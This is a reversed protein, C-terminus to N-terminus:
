EMTAKRAFMGLAMIVFVYVRDHIKDFLCFYAVRWTRKLLLICFVIWIGTIFGCGLGIYFLMSETVKERTRHIGSTETGLCNRELPPGCLGNNGDYISPDETYLTELQRGQPIMGALNNYSLDLYSLYTLEALSPPIEGSFNNRSLDLSELSKTSGLNELISGTLQNWSLNLNLLGHLFTIEDPITGTLHNLSLDIGVVEDIRAGYNLEQRKIVVSLIGGFRDVKQGVYSEFWYDLEDFFISFLNVQEKPHETMSILNSLSQPIVGSINNAALNLYRLYRLSAINVPIHGYFMNHSLQLFRLQVLDGIWDPLTGYFKNWSLDLYMLYSSQLFSPLIGSFSNRSLLLFILDLMQRCQPFEGELFNNSLDLAIMDQSECISQPIQGTIYNSSLILIKLDRAGIDLPLPGTLFNISLDLRNPMRPLIPIQGNLQNSRLILTELSSCNRIARPIDGIINNGSLDLYYLSPLINPIESPITGTLNNNYLELRILGSFNQTMPKVYRSSCRPLKDVLYKINCHSLSGGLRLDQLARLDKLEVPMTASNGNDNFGLLRLSTLSGLASPFPGFLHTGSLELSEISTLNWFWCSSVPYGLYNSSLDLDVLKTLNLLTLSQNSRPLSCNALHLVNLSPISNLVHPWDVAMSLDISSMDLYELLQLRNLWSIDTSYAHQMRGLGLHQLSSLNGLEPPVWGSFSATSLDLYELKSLNALQPPISGSVLLGGFLDLHRLNKMSGLFEPSSSNSGSLIIASLDLYELHELSLLPSIQQRELPGSRLTAYSLDLRLVYGTHHSCTIGVWRCCDHGHQWSGLLDETDNIGHKFDLLADREKPICSPTGEDPPPQALLQGAHAIDILFFCSIAMLLLFCADILQM